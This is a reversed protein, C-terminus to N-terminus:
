IPLKHLTQGNKRLWRRAWDTHPCNDHVLAWFAPGHNMELLHAVEHAAVYDLVKPPAMILRWSYSLTGTSSCSGWRSTTDRVSLTKYTTGMARAYADSARELDCRAERKMFDIIRRPMHERAGRVKLTPSPLDQIHVPVGRGQDSVEVLHPVGRITIALGHLDAPESPLEPALRQWIWGSQSRAFELARMFSTGEPVTLVIGQAQKDMRMIIRRARANRRYHVPVSRGDLVMTDPAEDDTSAPNILRKLPTLPM